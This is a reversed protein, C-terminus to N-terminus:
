VVSKRDAPLPLEVSNVLQLSLHVLHPPPLGGQQPLPLLQLRLPGPPGALQRVQLLGQQGAGALVQSHESQLHSVCCHHHRGAQPTWPEQGRSHSPASFVGLPPLLLSKIAPYVVHEVTQEWDLELGAHQGTDFRAGERNCVCYFDATERVLTDFCLKEDAWHVETALRLIFLPLRSWWPCYGELLAPVGAVVLRGEVEELHGYVDERYSSWSMRDLPDLQYLAPNRLDSSCM